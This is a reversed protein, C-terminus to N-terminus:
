TCIIASIPDEVTCCHGSSRAGLHSSIDILCRRSCHLCVKSLLDSSTWARKKFPLPSSFTHKSDGNISPEVSIGDVPLKRLFQKLTSPITPSSVPTAYDEEEVPEDISSTRRRSIYEQSHEDDEHAIGPAHKHSSRGRMSISRRKRGGKRRRVPHSGDNVDGEVRFCPGAPDAEIEKFFVEIDQRQSEMSHVLFPKLVPTFRLFESDLSVWHAHKTKEMNIISELQRTDVHIVLRFCVVLADRVRVEMCTSTM